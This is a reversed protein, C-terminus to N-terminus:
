LSPQFSIFFSIFASFISFFCFSVCGVGGGGGFFFFFFGFLCFLFCVGLFCLLFFFLGKLYLSNFAMYPIFLVM